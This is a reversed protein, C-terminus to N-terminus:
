LFEGKVIDEYVQSISKVAFLIGRYYQLREKNKTEQISVCVTQALCHMYNIFDEDCEVPKSKDPFSGFISM